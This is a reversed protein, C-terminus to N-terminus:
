AIKKWLDGIKEILSPQRQAGSMVAFRAHADQVEAYADRLGAIVVDISTPEIIIGFGVAQSLRDVAVRDIPEAVQCLIKGDEFRIPLALARVALHAPVAKVAGLERDGGGSSISRPASAKRAEEQVFGVTESPVGGSATAAPSPDTAGLLARLEEDSMATSQAPVVDGEEDPTNLLAAIEAASMVGGGSEAEAAAEAAKEAALDLEEAQTDISQRVMAVLDEETLSDFDFDDEEEVAPEESVPEDAAGMEIAQAIEDDSLAAAENKETASAFMAAIDDASVPSDDAGDVDEAAAPAVPVDPKETASAFMAAIDDASVPGDDAGVEESGSEDAMVADFGALLDRSEEASLAEGSDDDNFAEISAMLESHEAEMREVEEASVEVVVEDDDQDYFDAPMAEPNAEAFDIDAQSLGLDESTLDNANFNSVDALLGPHSEEFKPVDLLPFDVPYEDLDPKWFDAPMEDPNANAADIEEQTLAGSEGFIPEVVVPPVVVEVPKAQGKLAGVEATLTQIQAMLHALMEASVGEAAVQPAPTIEPVAPKPSRKRKVVAPTEEGLEKKKRAPM